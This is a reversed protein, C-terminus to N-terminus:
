QLVVVVTIHNGKQSRKISSHGVRLTNQNETMTRILNSPQCSDADHGMILLLKLTSSSM